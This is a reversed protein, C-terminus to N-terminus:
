VGHIWVFGFRRLGHTKVFIPEAFDVGTSSFPPAQNVRFKSLPPPAPLNYSRGEFKKCFVCKQVVGKVLSRGKVIWYKARVEDKVGNHRVKEHARRVILVALHHRKSLFVPHKTDYQTEVNRLRGGCRWIGKEDNFLGFQKRWEDFHRDQGFQRHSEIIWLREAESVEESGLVTYSTIKPLYALNL